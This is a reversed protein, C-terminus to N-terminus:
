CIWESLLHLSYFYILMRQHIQLMKPLTKWGLFFTRWARYVFNDSNTMWMGTTAVWLVVLLVTKKKLSQALFGHRWVKEGPKKQDKQLSTQLDVSKKQLVCRLSPWFLQHKRLDGAIYRPNSTPNGGLKEQSEFMHLWGPLSLYGKWRNTPSYQLKPLALNRWTIHGIHGPLGKM